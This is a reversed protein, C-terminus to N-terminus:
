ETYCVVPAGAQINDFVAQAVEYPANVCGHSGAAIYIDKGFEDRWLADHLGIGGNFPMWFNVPTKYDEGTLTANREKYKLMYTGAPTGWNNVINGTVIDGETILAGDKYFWMHQTTLNIELYTNGIDNGDRSAGSQSYKPVKTIDQGEKIAAILEETEESRNIKWGYDGGPVEVTKGLSTTFTRTKGVTNYKYGLEDIYRKVKSENFVVEYNDNVTIWKNITSGDLVETNNGINYTIKSSVYKDATNKAELVEQSKATFRPNEYCNASELDLTTQGELIAKTVEEYLTNKNIKNGYVEDVIVYGNETYELAANRPETVNESKLASLTDIVKKLLNEDYSVVEYKEEEESKFLASIWGYPSQSNKIKQITETAEYRLGFDAAKLEEKHNGRGELTLTYKEIESIIKNEVEEVTKRSVDMGNIKSGLYFHNRFYMSGGLYIILLIFFPIATGIAIKKGKSLKKDM